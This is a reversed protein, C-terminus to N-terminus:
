TTDTCSCLAFKAIQAIKFDGRMTPVSKRLSLLVAKSIRVASSTMATFWSLNPTAPSRMQFRPGVSAFKQGGSGNIANLCKCSMCQGSTCLTEKLFEAIHTLHIGARKLVAAPCNHKEITM